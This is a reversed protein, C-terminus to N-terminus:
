EAVTITGILTERNAHIVILNYSGPPLDAPLFYTHPDRILDNVRWQDLPYRNDTPTLQWEARPTAANDRLQLALTPLEARSDRIQWYFLASFPEGARLPTEPAHDSGLRNTQAAILSLAGVPADMFQGNPLNIADVTPPIPPATIQITGIAVADQGQNLFRRGTARDYAGIILRYDGPITGVPVPIGMRVPLEVNEGWRPADAVAPNEDYQGIVHNGGDLLQAFILPTPDSEMIVPPSGDWESYVSLVDGATLATAGIGISELIITYPTDPYTFVPEIGWEEVPSLPPAGVVYRELRVNGFWRSGAAFANTDLWQPIFLEPDGQQEAWWLVWIQEHTAAMEALTQETAAVDLPQSAPLGYISLEGNYYYDFIERQGAGDLLIADNEGAQAVITRVIAHYDDRAYRSNHYENALAPYTAVTFLAFAITTAVGQTIPSKGWRPLWAVGQWVGIGLLLCYGPLAILLFKPNWFPRDLSLLLMLAPPVLFYLLAIYGRRIRLAAITGSLVLLGVMVAVWLPLGENALGLTFIRGIERVMFELTVPASISPWNLITERAYWLWPLYALVLTGQLGVWLLFRSKVSALGGKKNSETRWIGWFCILWAINQAVVLPVAYYHSYLMALTVLWYALALRDIKSKGWSFWALWSATGLATVLMYMRSEQSYHIAFPSIALLAAAIIAVTPVPHLKRGIAYTSVVAVVGCFVSFARLAFVSTGVLAVWYHLLLYYLPPHIDNATRQLIDLPARPAMAVSNGEDAWLSQHELLYLRLSFALLLLAALFAGKSWSSATWRLLAKM